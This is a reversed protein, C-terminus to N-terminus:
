RGYAEVRITSPGDPARFWIKLENRGDFSLAQSPTDVIMDGHYTNGNFSYELKNEGENIFSMVLWNTQIKILVTCDSTFTTNNVTEKTFFNRDKGVTIPARPNGM